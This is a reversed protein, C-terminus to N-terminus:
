PLPTISPYRYTGHLASPKPGYMRLTVEFRGSKPSPLWNSRHGAPPTSQIYIDLSGTPNYKVGPTRNGISYRNIANRVLYFAENYMTLSWFYRAPPLHHAAFHIVYRHDGTVLMRTPTEFGIVYMAERPINAGIGLVAIIARLTYDTGYRGTDPPPVFWGNHKAGNPLAAELRLAQIHGPGDNASRTLGALM